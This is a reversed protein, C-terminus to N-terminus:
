SPALINPNVTSNRSSTVYSSQIIDCSPQNGGAEGVAFGTFAKSMIKPQEEPDTTKATLLALGTM